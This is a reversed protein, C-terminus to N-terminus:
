LDGPPIQVTVTTGNGPESEIDVTGNWALLRERMGLLGLSKPSKIKEAPIGIGNDRVKLVTHSNKQFLQITINSAKAHRFINTLTEQFVRFLTISRDQDLLIENEIGSSDFHFKTRSQYDKIQWLIVEGLGFFDLIQPRLETSIQQVSQITNDILNSMSNISEQLQKNRSKPEIEEELYNLELQIATLQQGLEDHVARAIREKEEERIDQLRHALSRLQERSSTIEQILPNSVRWFLVVGVSIVIFGIGLAILGARYFPARIEHLDIKAVLGLNLIKIPEYAALVEVNRYDLGVMTGSEGKLARQIPIGLPSDVPLSKPIMLDTHRHSLIFIIQNEKERALLFEGTKGFGEFKKHAEIFQSLTAAETGKPYNQSYEMDFQAVAEMLRAQSQAVEVLRSREEKYATQYLVFISVLTMTLGVSMMILILGWRQRQTDKIKMTQAFSWSYHGM